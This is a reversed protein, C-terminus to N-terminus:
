AAEEARARAEDWATCLRRYSAAMRETADGATVTGAMWEAAVDAFITRGVAFGRVLKQRAAVAFSAVLEAESAGLGLVVIGRTHPDNETIARTTEAWAADSTMPELKWWDPFVGIGYFRRIVEATTTDTVPGAKSPIVELLFELRNRRARPVPAAGHGGARGLAEDDDPHCVCLAKVVHEAAM